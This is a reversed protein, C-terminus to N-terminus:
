FCTITSSGAVVGAEKAILKATQIQFAPITWESTVDGRHSRRGFLALRILVLADEEPFKETTGDLIMVLAKVQSCWMFLASSFEFTWFCYVNFYYMDYQLKKQVDEISTDYHHRVQAWGTLGTENEIAM